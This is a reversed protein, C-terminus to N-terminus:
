LQQHHHHAHPDLGPILGFQLVLSFVAALLLCILTLRPAFRGLKERLVRSLGYVGVLAPVSGIWFVLMLLAGQAASGSGAALIVFGYLWPCPFLGTLLGIMLAREAPNVNKEGLLQKIIKGAWGDASKQSESNSFNRWDVITWLLLIGFAAVAATHKLGSHEGLLNVTQGLYGALAGLTIYSFARGLHYNLHSKVSGSACYCVLGGCM